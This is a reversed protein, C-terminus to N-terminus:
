SFYNHQEVYMLHAILIIWVSWIYICLPLFCLYLVCTHAIHMLRNTPLFNSQYLFSIRLIETFVNSAILNRVDPNDNIHNVNGVGQIEAISRPKRINTIRIVM